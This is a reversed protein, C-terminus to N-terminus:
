IRKELAKVDGKISKLKFAVILSAVGAVLFAAGSYAVISIAGAAPYYLVLFSLIVLVIGSFFLWAWGQIGLSNLDFSAGMLYFARFMLWFGLFYPLTAMTVLPYTLLYTGIAVDIIGSVLTWGWGKLVSRNGIAFFIQSFGVCLIVISFLVSLGVYGAVPRALIAVGAAILLLAKIVFWWWNKISSAITGAIGTITTM